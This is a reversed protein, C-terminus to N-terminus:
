RRRFVKGLGEMAKKPYKFATNLIKRKTSNSPAAPQASGTALAHSDFPLIGEGAPDIRRGGQEQRYSSPQAARPTSFPRLEADNGQGSRPTQAAQTNRGPATKIQGPTEQSGQSSPEAVNRLPDSLPVRAEREPVQISSWRPCWAGRGLVFIQASIPASSQQNLADQMDQRFQEIPYAIINGGDLQIVSQNNDRLLEDRDQNTFGYRHLQNLLIPSTSLFTPGDHTRALSELPHPMWKGGPMNSRIMIQGGATIADTYQPSPDNIKPEQSSTKPAQQQRNSIEQSLAARWLKKDEGEAWTETNKFESTLTRDDVDKFNTGFQPNRSLGYLQNDIAAEQRQHMIQSEKAEPSDWFSRDAYKWIPWSETAKLAANLEEGKGSLLSLDVLPPTTPQAQEQQPNGYRYHEGEHFHYKELLSRAASESKNKELVKKDTANLINTYPSDIDQIDVIRRAFEQITPHRTGSEITERLSPDPKYGKPISKVIIPRSHSPSDDSLPQQEHQNQTHSPLSQSPAVLDHTGSQQIVTAEPRTVAVQNIDSAIPSDVPSSTLQATSQAQDMSPVQKQQINEYEYHEGQRIGYEKELFEQATSERTDRELIEQYAKRKSDQSRSTGEIKVSHVALKALGHINEFRRGPKMVLAHDFWIPKYTEPISKVIINTRPTSDDSIM